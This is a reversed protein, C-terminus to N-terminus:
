KLPSFDLPTMFVSEVKETLSGNAESVKKVDLWEPDARFNKFSEAGAEKSKHALVYILQSDPKDARTWYGVSTMGHKAFLTLTHDRFRALLADMKSPAATYTRLEFCRPADTHSPEIKPSFDTANLFISDVKAVLKGDAESAQVVKKWEPDATFSQWDKDHTERNPCAIIYILKNDPNEVPIWYGINVLGHKAFLACTHDRFRAELADLKGPAAYYVRLEYCRTDKQPAAFAGVCALSLTFALKWTM